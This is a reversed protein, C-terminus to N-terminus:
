KGCLVSLACLNSLEFDVKFRRVKFMKEGRDRRDRRNIAKITM